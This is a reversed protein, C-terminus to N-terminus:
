QHGDLVVVGKRVLSFQLQKVRLRTLKSAFHLMVQGSELHREVPLAKLEIRKVNQQIQAALADSQRGVTLQDGVPVRFFYPKPIGRGTFFRQLQIVELM